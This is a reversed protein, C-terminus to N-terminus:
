VVFGHLDGSDQGIDQIAVIHAIRDAGGPRQEAVAQAGLGANGVGARLVQSAEV